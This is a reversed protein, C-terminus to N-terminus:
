DRIEEADVADMNAERVWENLREIFSKRKVVQGKEREAQERRRQHRWDRDHISRQDPMALLEADTYHHTM